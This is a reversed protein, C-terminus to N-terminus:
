RKPPTNSFEIKGGNKGGFFVQLTTTACDIMFIYLLSIHTDFGLSCSRVAVPTLCHLGILLSMGTQSYVNTLFFLLGNRGRSVVGNPDVWLLMETRSEAARSESTVSFVNFHLIPRPARAVAAAQGKAIGLPFV